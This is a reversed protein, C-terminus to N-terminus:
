SLRGNQLVYSGDGGNVIYTAVKASVTEDINTNSFRQFGNLTRSWGLPRVMATDVAAGNSLNQYITTNSFTLNARLFFHEMVVVQSHVAAPAGDQHQM